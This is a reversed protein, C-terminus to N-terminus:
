KEQGKKDRLAQDIEELWEKIETYEPVTAWVRNLDQYAKQYQKLNKYALGRNYYALTNQPDVELVRNCDEIAQQSQGLALYYIARDNYFEWYEPSQQIAQSIDKLAAQYNDMEYAFSARDAYYSAEEPNQEIAVSIQEIAKGWAGQEGYVLSRVYSINELEQGQDWQSAQDLDQLALDFEGTMTHATARIVYTYAETSDIALAEAVSSLARDLEGNAIFAGARDQYGTLRVSDLASKETQAKQELFVSTLAEMEYDKLTAPETIEPMLYHAYLFDDWADQKLGREARFMARHYYLPATSESLSDSYQLAQNLYNLAEPLKGVQYYSKALYYYIDADEHEEPLELYFQADLYKGLQYYAIGWNLFDEVEFDIDKKQLYEYIDIASKYKGQAMLILAQLRYADVYQPDIRLCVSADEFSTEYMGLYYETYARYYYAFLNNPDIQISQDLYIKADQYLDIIFYLSGLSNCIDVNASDLTYANLYDEEAQVFNELHFFAQGRYLYLLPDQPYLKILLNYDVIAQEYAETQMYYYSRAYLADYYTPNIQLAKELFDFGQQTQDKNFCQIARQYAQEYDQDQASLAHYTFISLVLCILYKREPM